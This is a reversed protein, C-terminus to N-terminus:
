PNKKFSNKENRNPPFFSRLPEGQSNLTVAKNNAAVKRGLLKNLFSPEKMEKRLVKIRQRPYWEKSFAKIPRLSENNTAVQPKNNRPTPPPSPPLPPLSPKFIFDLLGGGKRTTRRNKRIQKRTKRMSLIILSIKSSHSNEYFKVVPVLSLIAPRYLILVVMDDM